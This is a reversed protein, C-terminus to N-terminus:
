RRLARNRMCNVRRNKRILGHHAPAALILLSRHAKTIAADVGVKVVGYVVQGVISGMVFMASLSSM